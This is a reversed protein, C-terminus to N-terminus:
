GGTKLLSYSFLFAFIRERSISAHKVTTRMMRPVRMTPPWPTDGSGIVGSEKHRKKSKREWIKSKVFRSAIEDYRRSKEKNPRTAYKIIILPFPYWSEATKATGPIRMM